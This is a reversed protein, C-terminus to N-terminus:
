RSAKESPSPSAMGTETEAGTKGSNADTGTGAASGSSGGAASGDIIGNDSVGSGNENEEIFGDKDEVIGDEVNPSMSPSIMPTASPLVTSNDLRDSGCGGLVACFLLVTLVFAAIKKM